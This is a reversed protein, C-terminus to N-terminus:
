DDSGRGLENRLWQIQSDYFAVQQRDADSKAHKALQNRTREAWALERSMRLMRTNAVWAKGDEQAVEAGPEDLEAAGWYSLGSIWQAADYKTKVVGPLVEVDQHYPGSYVLAVPATNLAEALVLLEATTVYRRRGNELDAITQRTLKLGLKETEGSLWAASRKGRLSKISAGVAAAHDAEWTNMFCLM